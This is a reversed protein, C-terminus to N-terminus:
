PKGLPMGASEYFRWVADNIETKWRPHRTLFYLFDAAHAAQRHKGQLKYFQLALWKKPKRLDVFVKKQGVLEYLRRYAGVVDVQHSFGAVLQDRYATTLRAHPMYHQLGLNPSYYSEAGLLWGRYCIEDDGGSLLQDGKRCSLLFPHQTTFIRKAMTAKIVMGAGWLPRKGTTLGKQPMQTGCAYAMKYKEFWEPLATDAVPISVGGTIDVNPHSQMLNQTQLFYDPHLWNDDDCILIFDGYANAIGIELAFSKGPNPMHLLRLPYPQFLSEWTTQVIFDTNDTCANNVVLLEADINTCRTLNALHFLTEPLRSAGNYTCVIISFLHM